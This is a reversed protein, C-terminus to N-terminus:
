LYPRGKISRADPHKDQAMRGRHRHRIYEQGSTIDCAVTSAYPPSLVKLLNDLLKDNRYPAEIFIQSYGDALSDEGHTRHSYTTRRGKGPPLRQIYIDTRDTRIGYAVNNHVIRRGIAGGKHREIRRRWLSQGPDAM